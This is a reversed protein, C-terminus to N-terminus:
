APTEWTLGEYFLFNDAVTVAHQLVDWWQVMFLL